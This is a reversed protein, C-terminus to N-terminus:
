TSKSDCIESIESLRHQAIKKKKKTLRDDRFSFVQRRCYRALVRDQAKTEVETWTVEVKRYGEGINEKVQEETTGERSSGTFDMKFIASFHKRQSCLLQRVFQVRLFSKTVADVTLEADHFTERDAIDSVRKM